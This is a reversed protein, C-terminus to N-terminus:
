QSLSPNMQLFNTYCRFYAKYSGGYDDETTALGRNKGLSFVMKWVECGRQLNSTVYKKAERQNHLTTVFGAKNSFMQSSMKKFNNFEDYPSTVGNDMKVEMILSKREMHSSFLFGIMAKEPYLFIKKVDETHFKIMSTTGDLDPLNFSWTEKGNVDITKKCIIVGCHSVKVGDIFNEQVLIVEM